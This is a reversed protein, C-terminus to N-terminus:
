NAQFNALLEVKGDPFFKRYMSAYHVKDQQNSAKFAILIIDEYVKPISEAGKSKKRHNLPLLLNDIIAKAGNRDGLALKNKGIKYKAMLFLSQNGSKSAMLAAETLIRNAGRTDNRVTLIDAKLFRATMWLAPDDSDIVMDVNALATPYNKLKMAAQATKLRIANTLKVNKQINQSGTLIRGAKLALYWGQQAYDGSAGHCNELVWQLQSPLLKKDGSMAKFILSFAQKNQRRALLEKAMKLRLGVGDRSHEKSIRDLIENAKDFNSATCFLTAARLLRATNNEPASSLDAAIMFWKAAEQQKNQKDYIESLLYTGAETLSDKNAIDVLKHSKLINEAKDLLKLSVPATSVAQFYLARAYNLATGRKQESSIGPLTLLKNYENASDGFRKALFYLEAKGQSIHFKRKNSDGASDYLALAQKIGPSVVRGSLQAERLKRTSYIALAFAATRSSESNKYKELILRYVKQATEPHKNQRFIAACRLLADPLRQYEPQQEMLQKLIKMCDESKSEHAYCLALSVAFLPPLKKPSQAQLEQELLTAARDYNGTRMLMVINSPLNQSSHLRQKEPLKLSAIKTGTLDQLQRACQRYRSLSDAAVSSQPYGKVLTYYSVLAKGLCSVKDKKNSTNEALAQNCNGTLFLLSVLPSSGKDGRADFNKDLAGFLLPDCMSEKLAADYEGLLFHARGIAVYSLARALDREGWRFERLQEILAKIRKKDKEGPPGTLKLSINVLELLLDFLKRNHGRINSFSAIKRNLWLMKEQDGRSLYYSRLLKALKRKKSINLEGDTQDLLHEYRKADEDSVSQGRAPLVCACSFIIVIWLRIVPVCLKGNGHTERLM